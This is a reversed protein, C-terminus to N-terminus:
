EVDCARRQPLSGDSLAFARLHLPASFNFVLCFRQEVVKRDKRSQSKANFAIASASRTRKLGM